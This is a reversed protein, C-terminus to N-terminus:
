QARFIDRLMTQNLQNLKNAKGARPCHGTLDTLLNKPIESVGCLSYLRGMVARSCAELLGYVLTAICATREPLVERDSLFIPQGIMLRASRECRRLDNIMFVFM